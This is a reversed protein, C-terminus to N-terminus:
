SDGARIGIRDLAEHLSAKTVGLSQAAPTLKRHEILALLRPATRRLDDFNRPWDFALLAAVREDGLEAVTRSSGAQVLMADLLRPVDARRDAIPPVNIVRMRRAHDAGLVAAAREYTPAAIIPRTHYTVGFLHSVFFSPLTGDRGLDAFLTGRSAQVLAAVQDGRSDFHSPAGVFGASRRPSTAHIDRALAEQDSGPKGLVLIPADLAIEELAADAAEHAGLGLAWLLRPRLLALQEDLALLAVDAVRFSAGAVVEFSPERHNRWYIGNTSVHDIITLRNGKRHVLAHLRSVHASDITLDVEPAKASGLTFSNREPSLRLELNKGVVRLAIVPASPPLALGPEALIPTGLPPRVGDPPEDVNMM